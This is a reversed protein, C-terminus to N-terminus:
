RRTRLQSVSSHCSSTNAWTCPLCACSPVPMCARVHGRPTPSHAVDRTISVVAPGALHTTDAVFPEFGDGCSFSKMDITYEVGTDDSYSRTVDISKVKTGRLLSFPKHRHIERPEKAISFEDLFFEGFNSTSSADNSHYIVAYINFTTRSDAMVHSLRVVRSCPLHLAGQSRSCCSSTSISAGTTGTGMM